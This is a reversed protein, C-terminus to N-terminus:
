AGSVRREHGEWYPERLQKRLLKGVVSKPLAETTIRVASPKKYSGLRARCLEILEEASVAAPDTVTVVAMPAEGWREHPIGFVAAEVVAPHDALVTELEAPWINFGGSVIMDDARDMVYLFGNADIRGIDQTHVWGDVLRTRTLEEDGWYGRMQGEVKAVIEGEEGIPLAHGEADRIEIQAFPHVRGASRLPTSGEIQAFWEDPGMGTIPVAETQGFGQYLCDGFVKRGLLATADTIPAGGVLISRLHPWAADSARPHRALAALLSPSAFMHSVRHERMMELVKGPEFVGFVLNAAGALWGPLFLYGSAHSIPGAHGVVSARSMRDLMYAWNRCNLVWDHHTYGVGKPKGTTGGSHRIITWDDDGIELMPDTADQAALWQEYGADRVQVHELCGLKRDLGVVPGALAEDALVVKAATGEIMHSHAQPSNRPYLPVRVAGAIACGLVADVCGLNNEELGAVRDGPKVGLARLGNAVRVGRDWAEAFSFSRDETIVAPRDRNLRMSQRMLTTVNM